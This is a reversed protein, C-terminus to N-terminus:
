FFFDCSQYNNSSFILSFVEHVNIKKKKQFKIPYIGGGRELYVGGVGGRRFGQVEGSSICGQVKCFGQSSHGLSGDSM